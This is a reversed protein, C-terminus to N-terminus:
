HLLNFANSEEFILVNQEDEAREATEVGLSLIVGTGTTDVHGDLSVTEDVDELELEIAGDTLSERLNAVVVIGLGEGRGALLDDADAGIEGVLHAIQVRILGDRRRFKM